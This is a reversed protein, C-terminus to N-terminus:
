EVLVGENFQAELKSFLDGTLIDRQTVFSCSNRWNVVELSNGLVRIDEKPLTTTIIRNNDGEPYYAIKISGEKWSSDGVYIALSRGMQYVIDTRLEDGSM